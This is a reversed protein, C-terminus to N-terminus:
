GEEQEIAEDLEDPSDAHLVHREDDRRHAHWTLHGDIARPVWWVRWKPWDAELRAVIEATRHIVAAGAGRYPQGPPGPRHGAFGPCTYAGCGPGPGGLQSFCRSAAVGPRQSFPSPRAPQVIGPDRPRAQRASTASLPRGPQIIQHSFIPAGGLAAQM